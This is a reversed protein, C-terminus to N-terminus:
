LNSNKLSSIKKTENNKLPAELKNTLVTGFIRQIM